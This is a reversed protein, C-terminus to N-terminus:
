KDKDAEAPVEIGAQKAAFYQGEDAQRRNDQCYYEQMELDPRRELVRRSTFSGTYNKPDEVTFTGELFHGNDLLRYREVVHLQDSQPLRPPWQGTKNNTTVAGDIYGNIPRQRGNTGITDIVLTDGEWHGISHGMWSPILDDGTPHKRGDMYVRRPLVTVEYSILLGNATKSIEIPFLPGGSVLPGWPDCDGPTYAGMKDLRASEAKGAATFQTAPDPRWPTGRFRADLNKDTPDPIIWVGLFDDHNAPKVQSAARAAPAAAADTAMAAGVLGAAAAAALALCRARQKDSPEKQM